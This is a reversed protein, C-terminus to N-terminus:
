SVSAVGCCLAHAREVGWDEGEGEGVALFPELLASFLEAPPRLFSPSRLKLLSEICVLGVTSARRPPGAAREGRALFPSAPRASLLSMRLELLLEETVLRREGLAEVLSCCRPPFASSFPMDNKLLARRCLSLRREASRPLLLASALFAESLVLSSWGLLPSAGGGGEGSAWSPSGFGDELGGLERLRVRSPFDLDEVGSALRRGGALPFFGRSRVAEERFSAEELACDGARPGGLGCHPWRRGGGM